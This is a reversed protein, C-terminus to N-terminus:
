LQDESIIKTTRFKTAGAAVLNRLQDNAGHMSPVAMFM